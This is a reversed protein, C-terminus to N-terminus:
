KDESDADDSMPAAAAFVHHQPEPMPRDGMRDRWLIENLKRADAQDAQDFNMEASAAAGPANPPNMQYILGNDRNRYDAKFAAHHGDGTFLPAMAAAEGDNYNMPPIGLLDELTRIMNVTTYFGSAVLPKAASSESYASIVLATSRHADVHDPGDQADDELILIATDKWYDSSSVAEVVRGVALDNDAVAAAPTARGAREGSTHDNPLRLLVYNPLTQGKGTKKARVFGEFENLFEDVRLQDPYDTRFDAARPDFHGRLEPKTPVDEAIM